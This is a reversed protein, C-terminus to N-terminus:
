NKHSHHSMDKSDTSMTASSSESTSSHREDEACGALSVLAFVALCSFILNKIM